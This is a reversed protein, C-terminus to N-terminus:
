RLDQRGRASAGSVATVLDGQRCSEAKCDAVHLHTPRESTSGYRPDIPAMRWRDNRAAQRALGLNYRAHGLNAPIAVCTHILRLAMQNGNTKFAKFRGNHLAIIRTTRPGQQGARSKIDARAQSVVTGKEFPLPVTARAVLRRLVRHDSAVRLELQSSM